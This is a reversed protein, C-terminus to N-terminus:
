DPIRFNFFWGPATHVVKATGGHDVIASRIIGLGNGRSGASRRIEARNWLQESFGPGNDSYRFEITDGRHSWTITVRCPVLGSHEASNNLLNRLIRVFAGKPFHIVPLPQPLNLQLRDQLCCGSIVSELICQADLSEPEPPMTCEHVLTDLQQQLEMGISRIRSRLEGTALHRDDLSGMLVLAQLPSRMDHIVTRMTESLDPYRQGSGPMGTKGERDIINSLM